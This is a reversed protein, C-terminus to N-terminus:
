CCGPASISASRLRTSRSYHMLCANIIPMPRMGTRCGLRLGAPQRLDVAAAARLAMSIRVAHRHARRRRRRQAARRLSASIVSRRYLELPTRLWGSGDSRPAACWGNRKDVKCDARCQQFQNIWVILCSLCPWRCRRWCASDPPPEGLIPATTCLPYRARDGARIRGRDRNRRSRSLRPRSPVRTYAPASRCGVIGIFLLPTLAWCQGAIDRNLTLGIGIAAVFLCAVGAVGEM